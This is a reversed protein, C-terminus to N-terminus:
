RRLASSIGIGTNHSRVLAGDVFQAALGMMGARLMDAVGKSSGNVVAFMLPTGYKAMAQDVNM